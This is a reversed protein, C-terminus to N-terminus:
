KINNLFSDGIKPKIIKFNDSITAAIDAFSNRIKLDKGKDIQSHYVILPTYERTHDSGKYTPDNGHDATIILLDDSKLNSILKIIDRDFEELAKGYGIPDRRHGFLSDFEVLNLFCLGSFFEKSIKIIYEMGELNSKTKYSKTIGYGDFIDNIKGIAIVDFGNEELHNLVTKEFPKLAFDKRNSTRKFNYKNTGVFPRAIVRGVKYEDALTIERVIECIEYQKELPIVNEHMAIQLVSDSSTYVILDGTKLHEEGLNKIIETGSAAINGIVNRKTKKEILKILEDPFGTETFTKFPKLVELGTIEYHGTLTDKGKSIERLKGYHAISDGKKLYKSDIINGIGLKELNPIYLGKNYDITHLLTNSGVDGYIHADEQYGVGVSDLVILFIRNFM